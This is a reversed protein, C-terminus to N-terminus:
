VSSAKGRMAGRVSSSRGRPREPNPCNGLYLSSQTSCDRHVCTSTQYGHVQYSSALGAPPHSTLPMHDETTNLVTELPRPEGVSEYLLYM